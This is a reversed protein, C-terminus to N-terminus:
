ALFILFFEFSSSKHSIKYFNQFGRWEEIKLKKPCLFVGNLLTQCSSYSESISNQIKGIIFIKSKKRFNENSLFNLIQNWFRTKRALGKRIIYKNTWFFQFNLFSSPKLIKVFDRVFAVTRFFKLIKKGLILARLIVKRIVYLLKTKNRFTM